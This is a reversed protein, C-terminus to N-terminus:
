NEVELFNQRNQRERAAMTERSIGNGELGGAQRGHAARFDQLQRFTNKINAITKKFLRRLQKKKLAIEHFNAEIRAVDEDTFRSRHQKLFRELRMSSGSMMRVRGIGSRFRAVNKKFAQVQARLAQRTRGQDQGAQERAAQRANELARRVAQSAENVRRSFKRARCEARDFGTMLRSSIEPLNQFIMKRRERRWASWDRQEKPVAAVPESPGADMKVTTMTGSELTVKGEEADVDVRGEDVAIVSNGDLAVVAEFATGRVGIVATPTHLRLECPKGKIQRLKASVYGFVLGLVPPTEEVAYDTLEDIRIRSDSGVQFIGGQDLSFWVAGGEQTTIQDDAFLHLGARAEVADGNSRLVAATGSTRTISGVPSEEARLPFAMLISFAMLLKLLGAQTRTVRTKEPARRVM